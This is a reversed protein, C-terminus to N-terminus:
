DLEYSVSNNQKQLEFNYERTSTAFQNSYRINEIMYDSNFLATFVRKEGFQEHYSFSIQHKGDKLIKYQCDIDQNLTARLLNNFFLTPQIFVNTIFPNDYLESLDDLVIINNNKKNKAKLVKGNYVLTESSKDMKIFAPFDTYLSHQYNIVASDKLTKNGLNNRIFEKIVYQGSTLTEQIQQAKRLFSVLNTNPLSEEDFDFLAKFSLSSLANYGQWFDESYENVKEFKDQQNYYNLRDEVAIPNVDVQKISTIVIETETKNSELIEKTSLNKIGMISKVKIYKAHWQKGVSQYDIIKHIRMFPQRNKYAAIQLYHEDQYYEARIVAYHEAHIYLKGKHPAYLMKQLNKKHASSTLARKLKVPKVTPKKEFSIVYILNKNLSVISDLNYTYDSQYKADLFTYKQISIDVNYFAQSALNEKNQISREFGDLFYDIKRSKRLQIFAEKRPIYEPSELYM